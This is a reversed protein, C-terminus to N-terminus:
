SQTDLSKLEYQVMKENCWEMVGAFEGHSGTHSIYTNNIKLPVKLIDHSHGGLIINIDPCLQSLLIDMDLGIHTLAIIMDSKKKLIPVLNSAIYFPNKWYYYSPIKKYYSQHVIPIMIGFIAIKVNNIELIEYPKHILNHNQNFYNACVTSHKQGATKMQAAQPLPHAERNGLTSSSVNLTNLKNWIEETTSPITLNGTKIVDGTDFYLDVGGRIKKLATYQSKNLKGHLDSTHLIKITSMM